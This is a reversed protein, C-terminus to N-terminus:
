SCYFITVGFMYAGKGGTKIHACKDRLSHVRARLDQTIGAEVFAPRNSNLFTELRKQDWRKNSKFHLELIKYLSLYRYQIPIRKDLGDTFLRFEERQRWTGAFVRRTREVDLVRPGYAISIDVGWKYNEQEQDVFYWLAYPFLQIDPNYVIRLVSLLHEKATQLMPSFEDPIEERELGNFEMRVYRPQGAADVFLALSASVNDGKIPILLAPLSESSDEFLEPIPEILWCYLCKKM